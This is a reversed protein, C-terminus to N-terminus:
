TIQMFRSSPIPLVHVLLLNQNLFYLLASSPLTVHTRIRHQRGPERRSCSSVQRRRHGDRRVGACTRLEQGPFCRCSRLFVLTAECVKADRFHGLDTFDLLMPVFYSSIGAKPVLMKQPPFFNMLSNSPTKNLLCFKFFFNHHVNEKQSDELTLECRAYRAKARTLLPKAEAGLRQGRAKSGHRRVEPTPNQLQCPGECPCLM